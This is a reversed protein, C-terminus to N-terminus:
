KSSADGGKEDMKVVGSQGQANTMNVEYVVKGETDGEAPSVKYIDGVTWDKYVDSKLATKVPEPLEDQAVKVKNAGEAKQETPQTQQTQEQQTTQANADVSAVGLLAIAAALFTVKKM